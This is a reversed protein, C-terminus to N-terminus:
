AVRHWSHPILPCRQFRLAELFPQNPETPKKVFKIMEFSNNPKNLDITGM